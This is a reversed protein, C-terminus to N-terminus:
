LIVHSPTCGEVHGRFSNIIARNLREKSTEIEFGTGSLAQKIDPGQKWYVFSEFCKKFTEKFTM